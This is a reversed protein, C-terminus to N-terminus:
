GHHNHFHIKGSLLCILNKAGECGITRKRGHMIDLHEIGPAKALPLELMGGILLDIERERLQHMIQDQEPEILIECGLPVISRLKKRIDSDFDVVILRPEIGQERFFRTMTIARTSGSVLAIRHDSCPSYDIAIREHPIDPIEQFGRAKTV